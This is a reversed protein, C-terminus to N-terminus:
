YPANAYNFARKVPTSKDARIVKGFWKLRQKWIINSWETASTKKYVDENKVINRWKVNLVYTMLLRRQFVNINKLSSFTNNGLSLLQLPFYAWMHKSHKMNTEPTLKKNDFIIELQNATTIALIKRGKIDEGTDLISGRYKCLRWENNTWSIIYQETKDHNVNLDRPKLIETTNHKFNEMSSHNSIVKSIDDVYEM